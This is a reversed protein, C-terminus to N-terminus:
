DERYTVASTDSEYVTVAAVEVPLEAARAQLERYLYVVVVESTPNSEAFAPLDNLCRHDLPELVEDLLGKLTAFDALFGSADLEAGRFHAVVRYNHGHLRACAGPYDKLSHAAAFQREVTLEFM